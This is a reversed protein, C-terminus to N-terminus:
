PIPEFRVNDIGINLKVSTGSSWIMGFEAGGDAPNTITAGSDNKFGSLPATITLWGHTNALGM